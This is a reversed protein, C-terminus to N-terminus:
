RRPGAPWRLWRATLDIGTVRGAAGVIQAAIFCQQGAGCGLDLVTEGAQLYQSPNGCGYDLAVIESPM